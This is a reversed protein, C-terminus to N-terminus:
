KQDIRFWMSPRLLRNLTWNHMGEILRTIEWRQKKNKMATVAGDYMPGMQSALENLRKMGNKRCQIWYDRKEHLFLEQGRRKTYGRIDKKLETICERYERLAQKEEGKIRLYERDLRFVRKVRTILGVMTLQNEATKPTNCGICKHNTQSLYNIICGVHYAHGCELKFCTDTRSREDNFERMDMDDMCV